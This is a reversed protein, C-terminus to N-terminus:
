VATAARCEAEFTKMLKRYPFPGFSVRAVGLEGLRAISPTAPTTMINVPLPSQVCVTKILAEDALGPAFFGDAGAAAYATARALAEDLHSAHESPDSRLFYDTRANIFANVGAKEAGRRVAKLRAVQEDAPRVGGNLGDEFNVGVAGAEFLRAANEEIEAPEHAYGAEFDVTLPVNVSAAIRGAIWVLMDFPLAEGDAYGHAAAVSWSGTAVAKAGAEAVVKAGGADWINYLALPTGPVHLERFKDANM